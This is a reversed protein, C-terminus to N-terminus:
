LFRELGRVQRFHELTHQRSAKEEYSVALFDKLLSYLLEMIACWVQLDPEFLSLVM